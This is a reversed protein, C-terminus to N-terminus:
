TWKTMSLKIVELFPVIVPIIWSFNITQFDLDQMDSVLSLQGTLLKYEVMPLSKLHIFQSFPTLCLISKFLCIFSWSFFDYGQQMQLFFTQGSIIEGLMFLFKM